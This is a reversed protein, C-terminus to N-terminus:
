FLTLLRLSIQKLNSRQTRRRKALHPKMLIIFGPDLVPEFCLQVTMIECIDIKMGGLNCTQMRGIRHTHETNGSIFHLGESAEFGFFLFCEELVKFSM